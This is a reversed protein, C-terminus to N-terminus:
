GRGPGDGRWAHGAIADEGADERIQDRETVVQLAVVDDGQGGVAVADARTQVLREFQTALDAGLHVADFDAHRPQLVLLRHQLPQHGGFLVGVEGWPM